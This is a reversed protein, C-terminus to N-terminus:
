VETARGSEVPGAAPIRVTFTSGKGPESAVHVSGGHAEVIFRVISLGLGCGGAPRSLSTDAQYFRDFAKRVARPSMGIGNDEVELCVQGDRAYARLAIRKEDGTYKYANDLLNLLVTVLADSDAMVCPLGPVVHVDFQCRPDRFREAMVGVAAEVVDGPAVEVLDFARKDREMRSFSLFNDILRSLRENERVLLDLYHRAQQENEYRGERLTEAFLRVSSLPTKLEHTVTAIFDNKLRTLKAERLLHRGALLGIVVIAAVSLLSAWLYGAVQRSAAAAFPDKGELSLALQWEPLMEGVPLTLFADGARAGEAPALLEVRTGPVFAEAGVLAHMGDLFGKERLLAVLTGSETSLCWVGQVGSPALRSPAPLAPERELYEAALEEAALTPFAAADGAIGRVRHMLFRRQAPPMAPPSYDNLRAVLANRVEAYRPEEPDAILELSRLGALPAILRGAADRAEASEPDAFLRALLEVAGATDGAGALRRVEAWVAPPEAADWDPPPAHAPYAVKGAEDCIVAGECAGSTVLQAFTSPPDDDVPAAALDAMRRQWYSALKDATATLQPRYAQVLKQRVALRENRVAQNMFWLVCATPVAVAVVLLLLLQWLGRASGSGLDNNTKVM